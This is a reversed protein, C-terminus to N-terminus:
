PRQRCSGVLGHGRGADMELGSFSVFWCILYVMCNSHLCVLRIFVSCLVVLLRLFFVLLRIFCTSLVVITSMIIDTKPPAEHSAVKEGLKRGCRHGPLIPEEHGLGEAHQPRAAEEGEQGGGEQWARARWWQEEEPEEGPQDPQGKVM